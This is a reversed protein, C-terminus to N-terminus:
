ETGDAAPAALLGVLHATERVARGSRVAASDFRLLRWGAVALANYKEMDGLVGAGRTHRGGTWIGGEIEVALKLGPWAFDIRWKRDPHFRFEQEPPSVAFGTLQLRFLMELSSKSM